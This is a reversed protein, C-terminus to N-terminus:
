ITTSQGRATLPTEIITYLSRAQDGGCTGSQRVDAWVALVSLEDIRSGASSSSM